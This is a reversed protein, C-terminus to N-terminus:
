AFRVNYKYFTGHRDYGSITLDGDDDKHRKFHIEQWTENSEIKDFIDHLETDEDFM